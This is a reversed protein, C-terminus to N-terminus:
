RTPLPLPETSTLSAAWALVAQHDVTRNNTVDALGLWTQRDQEEDQISHDSLIAQM